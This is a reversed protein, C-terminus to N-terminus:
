RSTCAPEQGERPTGGAELPVSTPTDPAPLKRLLTMSSSRHAATPRKPTGKGPGPGPRPASFAPKRRDSRRSTPPAPDAPSRGAGPGRIKMGMDPASGPTSRLGSYFSSASNEPSSGVTRNPLRLFSDPLFPHCLGALAPRSETVTATVRAHLMGQGPRAPERGRHILGTHLRWATGDGPTPAGSLAHCWVVGRWSPTMRALGPTAWVQCSLRKSHSVGLHFHLKPVESAATSLVLLEETGLM